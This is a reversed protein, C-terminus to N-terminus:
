HCLSHPDLASPLLLPMEDLKRESQAPVEDTDHLRPTTCNYAPGTAIDSEPAVLPHTHKEVASTRNRKGKKTQKNPMLWCCSQSAQNFWIFCKILLCQHLETAKTNLWTLPNSSPWCLVHSYSTISTVKPPLHSAHKM